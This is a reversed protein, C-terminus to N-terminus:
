TTPDHPVGKPLKTGSSRGLSSRAAPTHRSSRGPRPDTMGLRRDCAHGRRLRRRRSASGSGSCRALAVPRVAPSGVATSSRPAPGPGLLDGAAGQVVPVGVVREVIRQDALTVGLGRELRSRSPIATGGCLPPDHRQGGHHRRDSVRRIAHAVADSCRGDRAAREPDRDSGPSAASVSPCGRRLAAVAGPERRVTRGPEIGRRVARHRRWRERAYSRVCGPVLVGARGLPLRVHRRGARDGDLHGRERVRRHDGRVAGHGVGAGALRALVAHRRADLGPEHGAADEGLINM